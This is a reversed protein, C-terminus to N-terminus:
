TSANSLGKVWEAIISRIIINWDDLEQIEFEGTIIGSIVSEPIIHVKGDMTPVIYHPRFEDIHYINGM